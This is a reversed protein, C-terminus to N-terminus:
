ARCHAVSQAPMTLRAAWRSLSPWLKKMNGLQRSTSGQLTYFIPLARSEGSRYILSQLAGSITRAYDVESGMQEFIALAKEYEGIAQQYKGTLYLVHGRARASHATASPDNIQEAIWSGAQALRGAKQLDVRAFTVVANYLSDVSEKDCDTARKALFARRESEEAIAALDLIWQELGFNQGQDVM